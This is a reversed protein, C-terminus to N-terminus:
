RIFYVRGMDDAIVATHGSFDFGVQHPHEIRGSITQVVTLSHIDVVQVLGAVPTTVYLQRGDPTLAVDEAGAGVGPVQTRVGTSTDLVELGTVNSAIFVKSGDSSVAIGEPSVAVPFTRRVTLTVPDIIMVSAAAESSAYLLGTGAAFALGKVTPGVLVARPAQPNAPSLVYLQDAISSVFVQHGDSSFAVNTPSYPLPITTIVSDGKVDVVSVSNSDSNAVFALTGTPDIAVGIPQSGVPVTGTFNEGNATLTGGAVSAADVRTVYFTGTSAIAVSYPAGDLNLSTIQTGSPHSFATAPATSDSSCAMVAGLLAAM